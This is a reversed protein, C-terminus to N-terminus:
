KDKLIFNLKGVRFLLDVSLIRHGATQEPPDDDRKRTPTERKLLLNLLWSLNKEKVGVSLPSEKTLISLFFLLVRHFLLVVIPNRGCIAKRHISVLYFDILNYRWPCIARAYDNLRIGNFSSTFLTM